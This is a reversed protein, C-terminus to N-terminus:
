GTGYRTCRRPLGTGLAEHRPRSALRRLSAMDAGADVVMWLERIDEGITWVVDAVAQVEGHSAAGYVMKDVVSETEHGVGTVRIAAAGAKPPQREVGSRDLFIVPRDETPEQIRVMERPYHCYVRHRRIDCARM